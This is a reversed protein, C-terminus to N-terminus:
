RTQEGRAPGAALQMIAHGVGLMSFYAAADALIPVAGPSFVLWEPFVAAILYDRPPGIITAVMLCIALGRAGFRMAVRWTILLFPMWSVACCLFLLALAGFTSPLPVRWWGQANGLAAAGLAVLGAAAGGAVAGAIRRWSPKTFYVAAALAISYALLTILIQQTTM